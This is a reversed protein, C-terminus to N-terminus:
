QRRFLLTIKFEYLTWRKNGPIWDGVRLQLNVCTCVYYPRMFERIERLYIPLLAVTRWTSKNRAYMYVLLYTDSLPTDRQARYHKPLLFNLECHLYFLYAGPDSSGVFIDYNPILNSIRFNKSFQKNYLQHLHLSFKIEIRHM